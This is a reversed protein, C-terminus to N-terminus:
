YWKVIKVERQKRGLRCLLKADLIWKGVSKGVQLHGMQMKSAHLCQVVHEMETGVSACVSMYGQPSPVRPSPIPSVQVRLSELSLVGLALIGFWVVLHMPLFAKLLLPVDWYTHNYRNLICRSLEFYEVTTSETKKLTASLVLYSLIPCSKFFSICYVHHWSTMIDHMEFRHTRQAERTERTDREGLEVVEGPEHARPVDQSVKSDAEPRPYMSIPSIFM